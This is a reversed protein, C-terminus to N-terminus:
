GSFDPAIKKGRGTSLLLKRVHPNSYFWLADHQGQFSKLSSGKTENDIELRSAGEAISRSIYFSYM